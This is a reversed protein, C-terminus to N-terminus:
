YGIMKWISDCTDFATMQTQDFEFKKVVKKDRNVIDAFSMALSLLVM